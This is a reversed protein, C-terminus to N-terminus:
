VDQIDIRRLQILRRVKKWYIHQYGEDDYRIGDWVYSYISNVPYGEKYDSSKLANYGSTAIHNIKTVKNNNYALAIEASIGVQEPQTARLIDGNLRCNLAVTAPTPM